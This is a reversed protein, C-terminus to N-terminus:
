AGSLIGIFSAIDLFNVSGDQNCDAEVQFTGSTLLAIFPAIDSFNVIGDLNVDGVLIPPTAFTGTIAVNDVWLDHGGAGDGAGSTFSLLFSVTEGAELTHDALQSLCHSIDDHANNDWAGGVSTIEDDTSTYIVGGTIDGSAVSLQYARAARPRFAYADFHFGTLDIDSSSNNTVTFTITGGTTANSLELNENQIGEGGVTSATPPGAFTGWDGDSSAGRGDVVNWDTGESATVASGTVGVAVVSADPTAGNDWTDWGAVLEGFTPEPVITAFELVRLTSGTPDTPSTSTARDQIYISLIGDNMLRANDLQPTGAYDRSNDRRLIQWDAYGDNIRQAGAIVLDRGQVYVGYLNGSSDVSLRPRSGVSGPVVLVEWVGTAANRYYHHYSSNRADSFPSNTYSPGVPRHFMLAHVGGGADVIQGQQNLLAHRRDLDIVEVGASNLTIPSSNTGVLQDFTNRWTVGKDDSYAYMIDHNGDQTSERWNWTTHLRGSSDAHFGNHYSNRRISPNNNVDDYTQGTGRGRTVFRTGSWLGTQSNYDAIRHDGNGSGFDRYTFVLDDGVNTFRPYTIRAISPGGVNLTNREPLFISSNWTGGASTAVGANTTLYRLPHVHHDYSIHIRGDSSIGMSVINHSDWTLNGIEMNFGTDFIEWANGTLNRRGIFIDQDSGNHYWIAYQYGEHTLLVEQQFASGNILNSFNGGTALVLGQTDLVMEPLPSIGFQAWAQPAPQFSLLLIFIAVACFRKPGTLLRSALALLLSQDNM